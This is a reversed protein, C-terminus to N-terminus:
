KKVVQVCPPVGQKQSRKCQMEAFRVVRAKPCKLNTHLVIRSSHHCSRQAVNLGGGGCDRGDDNGGKTGSTQEM